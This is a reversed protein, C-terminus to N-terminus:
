KGIVPTNEAVPPIIESILKQFVALALLNTISYQLKSPMDPPLLFASLSLCSLIIVPIIMYNVFYSPERRFVIRYHVNYFPHNCCAYYVTVKKASVDVMDWVGNYLFRLIILFAHKITKHSIKMHIKSFVVKHCIVHIWNEQITSTLM